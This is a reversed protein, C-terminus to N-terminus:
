YNGDETFTAFCGLYDFLKTTEGKFLFHKARLDVPQEVDVIGQESEQSISGLSEWSAGNDEKAYFSITATVSRSKIYHSLFSVRKFFMLSLTKTLMTSLVFYRTMASGMDTESQHLKYTYGSYDSGIDLPFGALGEVYDISPQAADLGDITTSLADLGDITYSTQQSWIGFTRIAFSYHHWISYKINLAIVKDNGTSSATSPISWWIQNYLKVYHAEINAQYTVNIAKMTVDIADSVIAGGFQHVAYDDGIWYLRGEGDNVVSHAAVTGSAQANGVYWIASDEVLWMPFHNQEKFVVLIDAGQYTYIGAGKINGYGASFDKAGTDGSGTADYDTIDGGTCWRGRDPYHSGGETTDFFWIYNEYAIVHGAKTLYTTGGDLDLGSTGDLAAFVTAPTTEDWVQVKDVNNTSVIKNDVSATSWLTCDSDCTFFKDFQKNTEDWKYVHAKTYAFIHETGTGTVHRHYRIIPNGDPVAVLENDDDVFGYSGGPMAKIAGRYLFVNESEPMLTTPLKVTPVDERTGM